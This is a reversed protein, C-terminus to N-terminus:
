GIVRRWVRAMAAGPCFFIVIFMGYILVSKLFAFLFLIFGSM